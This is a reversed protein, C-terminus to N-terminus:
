RLNSMLTLLPRGTDVETGFKTFIDWVEASNHRSIHESFQPRGGDQIKDCFFNWPIEPEQVGIKTESSFLTDIRAVAVSIRGKSHNILIAAAAM